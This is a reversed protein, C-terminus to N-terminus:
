AGELVVTTPVLVDGGSLVRQAREAQAPDDDVRFRVVLNTDVARM